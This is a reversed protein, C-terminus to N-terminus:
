QFRLKTLKVDQHPTLILIADVLKWNDITIRKNLEFTGSKPSKILGDKNLIKIRNDFFREFISHRVESSKGFSPFVEFWGKSLYHIVGKKLQERTKDRTSGSSFKLQILISADVVATSPKDAKKNIRTTNLVYKKILQFLPERQFVENLVEKISKWNNNDFKDVIYKQQDFHKNIEKEIINSDIWQTSDDIIELISKNELAAMIKLREHAASSIRLTAYTKKDGM